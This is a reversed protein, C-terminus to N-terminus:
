QIESLVKILDLSEVIGVPSEVVVVVRHIHHRVMRAAIEDVHTDPSCTVVRSTMVDKVTLNGLRASFGADNDSQGSGIWPKRESVYGDLANLLVPIRVFDSRSIIGVLRREEVVPLGTFNGGVLLNEVRKLTEHLGVCVVPSTMIDAAVTQRVKNM